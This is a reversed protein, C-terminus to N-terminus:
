RRRTMVAAATTAHAAAPPPIAAAWPPAAPLLPCALAPSRVWRRAVWRLDPRLLWPLRLWRPADASPTRECRACEREARWSRPVPPRRRACARPSPRRARSRASPRRRRSRASALRRRRPQPSPSPLSVRSSSPSCRRRPSRSSQTSVSSFATGASTAGTDVSSCAFKAPQHEITSPKGAGRHSPAPLGESEPDATLSRTKVM